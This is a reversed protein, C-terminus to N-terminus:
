MGGYDPHEHPWFYDEGPREPWGFAGYWAPDKKLLRARHSSHVREDGLWPPLAIPLNAALWEQEPYAREALDAFAELSTYVRDANGRRKWETCVAMGYAVLGVAHGEWMKCAPHRRMRRYGEAYRRDGVLHPHPLVAEGLIPSAAVQDWYIAVLLQKVESRQKGLRDPDLAM